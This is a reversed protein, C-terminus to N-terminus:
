VDIKVVGAMEVRDAGTIAKIAQVHSIALVRTYAYYRKLVALMRQRVSESTEWLRTEGPPCVGKNNEYDAQLAEVEALTRWQFTRDPVWEHLDFEVRFPVLLGQRIVLATQLARAMPSSIVIEPQFAQIMSLRRMVQQVGADSLPALDSGWGPAEWRKPGSFDPQGHRMLMFTTM